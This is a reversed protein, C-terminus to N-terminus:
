KNYQNFCERILISIIKNVDVSAAFTLSCEFIHRNIRKTRNALKLPNKKQIFIIYKPFISFEDVINLM